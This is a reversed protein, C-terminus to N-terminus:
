EDEKSTDGTHTVDAENGQLIGLRSLAKAAAMPDGRLAELVHSKTEEILDLRAQGALATSRRSARAALAPITSKATKEM